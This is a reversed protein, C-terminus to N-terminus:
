YVEGARVQHGGTGGAARAHTAYRFHWGEAARVTNLEDQTLGYKAFWPTGHGRM